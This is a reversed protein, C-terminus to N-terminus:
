KRNPYLGTVCIVYNLGGPELGRLDPVGVTLRGDGGYTTGVISYYTSFISIPLTQGQAFVTGQPEYDGVFLWAEGIARNTCIGSSTPDAGLPDSPSRGFGSTFDDFYVSVLQLNANVQDADAVTGNDFIYPFPIEKAQALLPVVLALAGLVKAARRQKRLLAWSASGALFVALLLGAGPLLPVPNSGGWLMQGWFDSGWDALAVSPVLALPFALSIVRAVAAGPNIHISM